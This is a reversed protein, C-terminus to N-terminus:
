RNALRQDRRTAPKRWRLALWAWAGVMGAWGLWAVTKSLAQDWNWLDWINFLNRWDHAEMGLGGILPLQLYRGDAMYVSVDLLNEFFWFAAFSLGAPERQMWFAVAVILPVLCQGLSGGLIALTRNGLIGFIPHGAEHFVLNVNHLMYLITSDDAAGIADHAALLYLLFVFIASLTVFIGTSVPQWSNANKPTTEEPFEELELYASKDFENEAMPDPPPRNKRDQIEQYKAFVIQCKACSAASGSQKFGCNPCKMIEAM